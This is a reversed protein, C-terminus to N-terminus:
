LNLRTPPRVIRGSRTTVTKYNDQVNTNSKNNVVNQYYSPLEQELGFDFNKNRNCYYNEKTYSKKLHKSNRRLIRNRGEILYSRPEVCKGVIKGKEWCREKDIKHVIKDGIKYEVKNKRVFKKDENCSQRLLILKHINSEVKPELLKNSTPILTRLRRSNLIQSPSVELGTLPTNNYSLIFDRYDVGDEYAKRLITKSIHVAKEAMGNSRPYHPSSTTLVIDKSKYYKKCEYSNFPNNDAVIEEPYGFRTFTEQFANIVCNSSKDNLPLIELWHSFYDIIVLFCNGGFDLIDTGVKAYRQNPIKHSLLPEHSNGSRFKECTRCSMVFERIDTSLRPWYFLQRAKSICKCIGPHGEHVLKLVYTRLSKPVIIKNQYFALGCEFYIDEKLKYYEKMDKSIKVYEPWGNMYYKYLLSLISDSKTERQFNLKREPSMPLHVTVTHVMQLMEEDKETFELSNRSLMDAFHLLKGPVYYVNLNYMLLKLRLRKLRPSGIKCIAKSMISVIPKHDTQVDVNSGYIYRHFKKVAYCIALLEKETQSYNLETDNMSKSACSVLRLINNENQFLCCGIGSKSADCQLIIKRKPDFPTLAPTSSVKRKLEAFALRHAPLWIFDTNKKLLKFLPSMLNAMDPVYRRVYNFSGLIQRLEDRNTPEKLNLLSEIREKDLSMGHENFVQGVYKVETQKFQFKNKNFVIGLEKAKKMVSLLARDHEESTNGMVLIDDAWVVVNPIESFHNELVDQFLEPANMLGYPLVLYRYVGFPTAFCCKWSSEETLLLHHFGEALDLVSFYKKGHLKFSLDDLTPLVKPKKVIIKNLDIPDLCLRVNGNPKEVIVIRNVHANENINTVKVIAKRDELRKLEVKLPENLCTPLRPSPHCIQEETCKTPIEVRGPLRGIGEFVAINQLIFKEKDNNAQVSHVRRVLNLSVCGPLGLLMTTCDVVIFNEYCENDKYSCKLNIIGLPKVKEGVFSEIKCETDYLKLSCNKNIKDFIQKPMISVDAGTDLKCKVANGEIQISEIWDSKDISTAKVAGCYLSEDSESYKVEQVKKVRCSVAFHNLMGCKTCNKGFAPCERPGHCKQCRRCNFINNKNNMELNKSTYKEFNKNTYKGFNKRKKFEGKYKAADIEISPNMEKVQLRSVENARCMNSAKDLTLGDIRLLSEQLGKDQIGQVIRDRLLQDELSETSKTGYNCTSILQRLCTYFNEFSEGSEQTRENFKYREFVENYKPNVYKEIAEVVKAYNVLNEESLKLSLIVKTSEPGMMNRLLSLKVKDKAQDQGTSVLYDEFLCRWFRWESAASSSRMDFNPPLKVFKTEM